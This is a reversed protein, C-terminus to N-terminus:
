PHPDDLHVRATESTREPHHRTLVVLVVIGAAM